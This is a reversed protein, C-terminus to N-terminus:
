LPSFMILDNHSLSASSIQTRASILPESSFHATSLSPARVGGDVVARRKRKMRM